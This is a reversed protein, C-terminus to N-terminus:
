FRENSQGLHFREARDFSCETSDSGGNLSCFEEALRTLAQALTVHEAPIQAILQLVQRDSCSSAAQNLARIWSTPMVQLDVSVIGKPSCKAIPAPALEIDIAAEYLYQVGLYEALKAYIVEAQFPKRIFDDCGTALIASRDEEFASGTVAIIIPPQDSSAKIQQTAEYGDMVPMQMDMLILHPQQQQWLAIAECGNTAVDVAFGVPRLLRMLLQRNEAQDEVILLRYIPQNPALKVIRQGSTVIALETPQMVPAQISFCFRSGRDVWSEVLIEGGMLQVFNRSIVLGLGTGQHSARGARAQVFAGFLTDLEDPHIGAGTDEIAFHLCLASPLPCLSRDEQRRGGAEQRAEAWVRLTVSGIETFKIANGLLNMLVQNLKGEDAEIYRPLNPARDVQFALQKAHTRLEFVATLNDILRHLDVSSLDLRMQGAEIKSMDLVNNILRLLHQGSNNIIDLNNRHTRDLSRDRSMLQTFGLIANLPTRLEHSMNALFESKPAAPLKPLTKPRSFNASSENAIPSTSRWWCCVPKGKSIM